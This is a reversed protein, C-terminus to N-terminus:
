QSQEPASSELVDYYGILDAQRYIWLRTGDPQLREGDDLQQSAYEELSLIGPIREIPSGEIFRLPSGVSKGAANKRVIWKPM